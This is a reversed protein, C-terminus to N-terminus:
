AKTPLTLHTYSVTVVSVAVAELVPPKEPDFATEVVTLVTSLSLAPIVMALVPVVSPSPLRSVVSAPEVEVKVTTRSALGVASTVTEMVPVSLLSCERLEEDSVKVVLLQFVAWVTVTVPTSSLRMSPSIVVVSVAVAELM